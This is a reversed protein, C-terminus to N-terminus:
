ANELIKKFCQIYQLIEKMSKLMEFTVAERNDESVKVFGSLASSM